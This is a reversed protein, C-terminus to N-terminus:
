QLLLENFLSCLAANTGQRVFDLQVREANIFTKNDVPAPVTFIILISELRYLFLIRLSPKM